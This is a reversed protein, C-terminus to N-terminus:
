PRVERHSMAVYSTQAADGADHAVDIGYRIEGIGPKPPIIPRMTGELGLNRYFAASRKLDAVGISVHNLNRARRGLVGPQQGVLTETDLVTASGAVTLFSLLQRRTLKGKEYATLLRDVNM